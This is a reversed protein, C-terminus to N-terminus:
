CPQKRGEVLLFYTLRPLTRGHLAFGASLGISHCPGRLDRWLALPFICNPKEEEEEERAQLNGRDEIFEIGQSRPSHM